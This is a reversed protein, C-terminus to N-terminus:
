APALYTGTNAALEVPLAASLVDVANKPESATLSLAARITPLSYKQVQTDLPFKEDLDRALKEGMIRDGAKALALATMSTVDRGQSLKLAAISDAHAQQHKGAVAERLAAAALYNAATERSDSREASDVAQQTLKRAKNFRGYWGETDAQAALVVDESGPKAMEAAILFEMQQKDDRLFALLYQCELLGEGALKRQEADRFVQEAEALRNLNEYAAALNWYTVFYNPQLRNSEHAETLYAELKGLRAYVVGLNGVATSDRPYEQKWLEFVQAAKELEGTVNLYYNGEIAFRERESARNRLEYAKQGYEKSREGQNLNTNVIALHNWATAFDPDLEVSRKYLPLAATAGGTFEAKVGLSFAKLAELSPTTADQLRTGYKEVSSLSEGLKERLNNAAKDLADLVAEKSSARELTEGLTNGLNCDVARLGVVYQHGLAGISGLIMAKSGSRLCIERTVEETLPDNASRNMLRLTQRVRGNSLINLFPSQQLQVTLAQRLTGDFVPDGTSNAFDALVITDENSLKAHTKTPWYLLAGIVALIAAVATALWLWRFRAHNSAATFPINPAPGALASADGNRSLREVAPILWYGQKAVTRIYRPEDASDGLAKRLKKIAANISQDFEVVTDDPWLRRQIEERTVIEGDREVLMLLIRFPQEPLLITRDEARLEGRRVDLEFAGFRVQPAPTDKMDSDGLPFHRSNVIPALFICRRKEGSIQFLPILM